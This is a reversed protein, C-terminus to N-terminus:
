CRSEGDATDRIELVQCKASECAGNSYQNFIDKEGDDGKNLRLWKIVFM